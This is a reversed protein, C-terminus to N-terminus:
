LLKVLFLLLSVMYGDLKKWVSINTQECESADLQFDRVRDGKGMEEERITRM